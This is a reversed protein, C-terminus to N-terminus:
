AKSTLIYRSYYRGYTSCGVPTGIESQPLCSKALITGLLTEEYSRGNSMKDVLFLINM